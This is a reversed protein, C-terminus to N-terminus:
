RCKDLKLGRSGRGRVELLGPIEPRECIAASIGAMHVTLVVHNGKYAAWQILINLLEQLSRILKTRAAGSYKM